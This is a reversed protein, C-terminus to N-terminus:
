KFAFMRHACFGHRTCPLGCAKGPVTHAQARTGSTNITNAVRQVAACRFWPRPIKLSARSLFDTYVSPHRVTARIIVEKELFRQLQRATLRTNNYTSVFKQILSRQQQHDHPQHQQWQTSAIFLQRSCHSIINFYQFAICFSM